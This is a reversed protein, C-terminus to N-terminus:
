LVDLVLTLERDIEIEPDMGFARGVELVCHVEFVPDAGLVLDVGFVAIVVLVLCVMLVHNLDGPVVEIVPEAELVPAEECAVVMVHAMELMSLHGTEVMQGMGLTHGVKIEPHEMVHSVKRGMSGPSAGLVLTEGEHLWEGKEVLEEQVEVAAMQM